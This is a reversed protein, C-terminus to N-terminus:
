FDSVAYFYRINDGIQLRLKIVIPQSVLVSFFRIVVVGVVVLIVVVKMAMPSGNRGPGFILLKVLLM